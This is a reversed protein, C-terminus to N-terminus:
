VEDQIVESKLALMAERARKLRTRVTNVPIELVDAMEQYSLGNISRLVLVSRHEPTLANLLKQLSEENERDELEQYANPGVSATVSERYNLSSRHQANKRQYNIATNVTIRYIWTKLSAESRFNNLNSYVKMFTEQLVEQADERNGLVRYAVNAVFSFTSQYIKEFARMDGSQAKEIIQGDIDYMDKGM